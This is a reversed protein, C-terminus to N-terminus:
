LRINVWKGKNVRVQLLTWRVLADIDFSIWPGLFPLMANPFLDNLPYCFLWTMLPRLIAVSILSVLAVYRVDGAGRLCGAIMVRMNQPYIGILLVLFSYACGIIVATEKTFLTPLWHRGFFTLTMIILSLFLSCRQGVRVYARAKNKKTAGLSQGVLSTCASSIGDGVTFTLSSVQGVIQSAAFAETGIGAILKGNILFGIRMCVSELITGSGVSIVSRMTKKDFHFGTFPRLSLYGGKKLVVAIAVASSVCTGVATAIAAGRVGLAPFGLHGSILCYNLFINVLNAIVNVIMTIRTKGIGRMSSCICLAWCNPIFAFSIIRFYEAADHLTDENAGALTLLPEALLVGLLTMAVGIGTILVLSQKMCSLALDQRGEGKRRAIVAMTGTCLAQAVLLIIMRPQACLGVSTIAASGLQGVMMTDFSNMLTLLLGELAAPWAIMLLNKYMSSLPEDDGEDRVRKVGFLLNLFRNKYEM